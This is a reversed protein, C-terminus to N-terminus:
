WCEGEGVQVQVGFIGSLRKITVMELYKTMLDAPNVEGGIKRLRVKGEKVAEQLWLEKVSIHRIKGVGRRSAFSKAASSDTHLEVGGTVLGLEELMGSLGIGRTAGEVMAYFEAEASSMAVMAQTASWTRLTHKGLQVVGGSTSRRSRVCGAWDSDVFVRLERAEAESQWDYCFRVEKLGVMFRALKKIIQFDPVKPNAM